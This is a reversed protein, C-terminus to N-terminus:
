RWRGWAQVGLAEFEAWDAPKPGRILLAAPFDHAVAERLRDRWGPLKQLTMIAARVGTKVASVRLREWVLPQGFGPSGKAEGYWERGLSAAVRMDEEATHPRRGGRKRSRFTLVEELTHEHVLFRRSARVRIEHGKADLEGTWRWLYGNKVLRPWHVVVAWGDLTCALNRDAGRLGLFRARRLAAFGDTYLYPFRTLMFHAIRPHRRIPWGTPRLPADTLSVRSQGTAALVGFLALFLTLYVPVEL